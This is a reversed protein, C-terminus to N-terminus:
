EIVEDARQLLGSPFQLALAKAAKLNLVLEFKTPQMVPLDAPKEGKLVRASYLGAQWYSETLRTGYSMLGGATVYERWAYNAAVRHHASLAVIRHRQSYFFPEGAVLLADARLQVLTAFAEDLDHETEADIIHLRIGLASAAALAEQSGLEASPNSPNRLYAIAVATPLLEKLLEIGKAVLPMNLNSMGTINGGPRNLSAVLGLRVPDDAVAFVIPVTSTAAKAALASPPGGAAFLLAIGGSVLDAALGPLQDYRGHAWRFTIALNRGEIFGAEGLGGRFAEVAAASEAPSRSSLFGITLLRPQQARAVLPWAVVREMAPAVVERASGGTQARTPLLTGLAAAGVLFNRRRM